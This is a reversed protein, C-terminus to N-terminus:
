RRPKRSKPRYEGFEDFGKVFKAEKKSFSRSPVRFIEINPYLVWRSGMDNIFEEAEKITRFLPTDFTRDIEKGRRDYAVPSIVYPM